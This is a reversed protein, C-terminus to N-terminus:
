IGMGKMSKSKGQDYSLAAEELSPVEEVTSIPDGETGVALEVQRANLAERVQAARVLVDHGPKAEMDVSVAAGDGAVASPTVALADLTSVEEDIEEAPEDTIGLLFEMREDGWWVALRDFTIADVAKAADLVEDSLVSEVGAEADDHDEGVTYGITVHPTFEPYRTVGAETAAEYMDHVEPREDILRDSLATLDDSNLMWVVAGDDGLNEVSTVPANFAPTEKAIAATHEEILAKAVEGGPFDDGHDGFYALTVHKEEPGPLDGDNQPLAVIVVSKSVDGKAFTQERAEAQAIFGEIFEKGNPVREFAEVIQQPSTSQAISHGPGEIFDKGGDIDRAGVSLVGGPELRVNLHDRVWELEELNRAPRPLIVKTFSWGTIASGWPITIREGRSNIGVIRDNMVAAAPNSEWGELAAAEMEATMAGPDSPPGNEDPAESSTDDEDNVPAEQEEEVVGEGTETPSEPLTAPTQALIADFAAVMEPMNDILAPNQTALQIALEVSRKLGVPKDSDGFGAAERLTDDSVLGKEHLMSADGLRNPRVVMHSVDYWVVYERAEDPDMGQEILVPWLFQTTIADCILALPPEIHTTVVDERVLWAGWHNMGSVGLLLEPPADQGLALRRIAEDRLNRAESDLPTSFTIHQFLGTSEDPVTIVLPVLAAASSRDSIGTMMADMLAETFPDDDLDPDIGASIAIARKASAPVVLIGAGALRSDVQASIHMTLGVLERLIPLSARTPSDAQWWRRPHPRWVRILFVDDPSCIIQEEKSAGLILTVTGESTNHKVESVSLMRWELDDLSMMPDPDAQAEDQQEEEPILYRPIGCLWGDGAVFLNIGLRGIMQQRATPSDGFYSFARSAVSEDDDLPVPPEIPDDSIKGVYLKAQALRGSLTTALFRQEGVLDYMDWSDDQWAEPKGFGRRDKLHNKTIRQASAVLSNLPLLRDRAAAEAVRQRHYAAAEPSTEEPPLMSASGPGPTITGDTTM